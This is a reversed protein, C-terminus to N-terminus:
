EICKLLTVIAKQPDINVFKQAEEYLKIAKSNKSTYVHPPQANLLCSGLALLWCTFFLRLLFHKHKM